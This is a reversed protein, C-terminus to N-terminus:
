AVRVAHTKDLRLIQGPRLSVSSKPDVIKEGDLQVSGQKILSQGCRSRANFARILAGTRESDWVYREDVSHIASEASTGDCACSGPASGWAAMFAAGEASFLYEGL